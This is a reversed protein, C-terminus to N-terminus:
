TNTVSYSGTKASSKDVTPLNAKKMEELIKWCMYQMRPFHFPCKWLNGKLPVSVSGDRHLYGFWEGHIPDTFHDYAWNHIVQHWKAYRYKGTLHYALLTAIITENHPWWFKMDHWYEQVPRDYLDRFYFLGGYTEDWGRKWMWDLMTCGMEILERDKRFRGENMVFWAAEIAHGPNLTRGDLHDLIEGNPGVTEMVCELEPKLFDRRIEDIASDIWREADPLGISERLEQATILTIMPTSISKMPRTETFKPEMRGPLTQQDIFNRFLEKARTALREENTVRAYEGFAISAFAESFAYRRKRIPLGEQTVHFWMRGDKPDFCHKEIFNVGHQALEAWEERPEVSNYLKGLLWTFRGQQWVGKDSDLLSGDRDLAFCFGGYKKDVAHEIWFPLTDELLGNRYIDILKEIQNQNM